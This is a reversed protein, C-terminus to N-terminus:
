ATLVVKGPVKLAGSEVAAVTELAETLPREAGIKISVDGAEVLELVARSSAADPIAFVPGVKRSSFATTAASVMVSLGPVTTRFSGSDALM